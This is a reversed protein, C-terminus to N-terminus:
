VFVGELSALVRECDRVADGRLRAYNAKDLQPLMLDIAREVTPVEDGHFRTLYYALFPISRQYGNNCFVFVNGRRRRHAEISECEVAYEAASPGGSDLDHGSYRLVRAEVGARQGVLEDYSADEPLIAVICSVRNEKLIADFDDRHVFEKDIVFV